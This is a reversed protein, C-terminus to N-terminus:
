AQPEYYCTWSLEGGILRSTAWLCCGVRGVKGSVREVSAETAGMNCEFTPVELVTRANELLVASKKYRVKCQQIRRRKSKNKSSPTAGQFGAARQPEAAANDVVRAKKTAVGVFHPDVVNLIKDTEISDFDDIARIQQLLDSHARESEVFIFPDRHRRDVPSGTGQRKDGGLSEGQNEVVQRTGKFGVAIVKVTDKPLYYLNKGGAVNFDVVTSGGRPVHRGLMAAVIYQLRFYVGIRAAVGAAVATGGIVYPSIPLDSLDVPLAMAAVARRRKEDCNGPLRQKAAQFSDGGHLHMKKGHSTRSLPGGAVCAIAPMRDKCTVSNPMRAAHGRADFANNQKGGLNNFSIRKSFGESHSCEASSIFGLQTRSSSFNASYQFFCSNVGVLSTAQMTAM